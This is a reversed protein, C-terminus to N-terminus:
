LEKRQQPPKSDILWPHDVKLIWWLRVFGCEKKAAAAAGLPDSATGIWEGDGGDECCGAVKWEPDTM